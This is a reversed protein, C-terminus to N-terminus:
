QCGWLLPALLFPSLLHQILELRNICQIIQTIWRTPRDFTSAKLDVPLIARQTSALHPLVRISSEHLSDQSGSNLPDPEVLFSIFTLEGATLIRQGDRM